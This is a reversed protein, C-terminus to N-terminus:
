HKSHHAPPFHPVGPITVSSESVSQSSLRSDSTTDTAKSQHIYAQTQRRGNNFTDPVFLMTNRLDAARRASLILLTGLMKRICTSKWQYKGRAFSILMLVSTIHQFPPGPYSLRYLSENRARHDPSRIGTPRSEVCGDLGARTGV